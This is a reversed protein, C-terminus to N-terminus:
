CNLRSEPLFPCHIIMNEFKPVVVAHINLVIKLQLQHMVRGITEVRWSGMHFISAVMKKM